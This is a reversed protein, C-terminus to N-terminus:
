SSRSVRSRPQRARDPPGSNSSGTQKTRGSVLGDMFYAMQLGKRGATQAVPTPWPPLSRAQSSLM